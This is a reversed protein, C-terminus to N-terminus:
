DDNIKSNCIILSYIQHKLTSKENLLIYAINAQPNNSGTNANFTSLKSIKITSQTKIKKFLFFNHYDNSIQYLQSLLSFQYHHKLTLYCNIKPIVNPYILKFSDDFTVQIFNKGEIFVAKAEKHYINLGHIKCTKDKKFVSNSVKANKKRNKLIRHIKVKNKKLKKNYKKFLM